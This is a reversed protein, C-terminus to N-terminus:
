FLELEVLYSIASKTGCPIKSPAMLIIEPMLKATGTIKISDNLRYTGKPKEIETFFKPRKYEEVSFSESGNNTSDFVNFQGNLVGEPLKFSGNLVVLTM